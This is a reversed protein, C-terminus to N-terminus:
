SQLLDLGSMTVSNLPLLLIQVANTRFRLEGYPLASLKDGKGCGSHRREHAGHFGKSKLLNVAGPPFANYLFTGFFSYM